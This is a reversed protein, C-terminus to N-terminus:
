GSRGCIVKRGDNMTVEMREQAAEVNRERREVKRRKTGELADLLKEIWVSNGKTM